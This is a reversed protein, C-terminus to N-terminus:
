DSKRDAKEDLVYRIRWRPIDEGEGGKHKCLDSPPQKLLPSAHQAQMIWVDGDACVSELLPVNRGGKQIVTIAARYRSCFDVMNNTEDADCSSSDSSNRKTEFNSWQRWWHKGSFTNIVSWIEERDPVYLRGFM